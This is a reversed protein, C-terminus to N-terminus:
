DDVKIHYEVGGPHVTKFADRLSPNYKQEDYFVTIFAPGIELEEVSYPKKSIFDNFEQETVPQFSM